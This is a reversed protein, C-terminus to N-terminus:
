PLNSEFLKRDQDKIDREPGRKAGADSRRKRKPKMAQRMEIIVEAARMTDEAQQLEVHMFWQRIDYECLHVRHTLGCEDLVSTVLGDIM